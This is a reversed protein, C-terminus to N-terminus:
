NHKSMHRAKKLKKSPRQIGEINTMLDLGRRALVEDNSIFDEASNKTIMSSTDYQNYTKDTVYFWKTKLPRILNLNIANEVEWADFYTLRQFRWFKHCDVVYNSIDRWMKDAHAFRQCTSYCCLSAKRQQTLTHMIEMPFSAFKRHSLINEIEDILLITGCYGGDDGNITQEAIEVVQQFNILPIYPVDKLEYNSIIRVEKGYRKFRKYTRTAMESATLTKGRGFYGCFNTIGYENFDQWKKYKIYTYTDKVSYFLTKFINSVFCRLFPSLCFALCIFIIIFKTM